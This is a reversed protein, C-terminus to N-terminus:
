KCYEDEDWYNSAPYPPEDRSPSASGHALWRQCPTPADEDVHATCWTVSNCHTTESGIQSGSFEWLDVFVTGSVPYPYCNLISVAGGSWADTVFSCIGSSMTVGAAYEEQMMKYLGRVIGRLRRVQTASPLSSEALSPIVENQVLARKAPDLSNWMTAEEDTLANQPTLHDPNDDPGDAHAVTVTTGIVALIAALLTLITKHFRM